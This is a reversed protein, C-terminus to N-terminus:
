QKRSIKPLAADLKDIKINMLSANYRWRDFKERFADVQQKLEAIEADRVALLRGATALSSPAPIREGPQVELGDSKADYALKISAHASVGSRSPRRGLIPKALDRVNDWTISDGTWTRIANVILEVHEPRIHPNRSM